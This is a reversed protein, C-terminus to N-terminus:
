NPDDTPIDPEIEAAMLDKIRVAIVKVGKSDEVNEGAWMKFWVRQGVTIENVGVEIM